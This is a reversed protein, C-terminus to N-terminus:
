RVGIKICFRKYEKYSKFIYSSDNFMFNSVVSFNVKLRKNFEKVSLVGSSVKM